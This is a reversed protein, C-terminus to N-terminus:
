NVNKFVELIKEDSWSAYLGGNALRVQYVLEEDTVAQADILYEGDHEQYFDEVECNRVAKFAEEFSKAEVAYKMKFRSETEIIFVPM